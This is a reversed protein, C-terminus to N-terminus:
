GANGTRLWEIVDGASYRWDRGALFEPLRILADGSTVIPAETFGDRRSNPFGATACLANCLCVRNETEELSGGKNVYDDVPESSCRYGLKGDAARYATRLYGLDCVRPRAAYVDPRALTSELGVVKFPYGTPSAAVSTAVAVDGDLAIKIVRERLEPEMGSQQCLAFLTGVQIGAAGAELADRMGDPSGYGGALWFPQELEAMESLDVADRPGYIPEGNDDITMKGRPPANHGGASPMEVIFGDTQGSARKIMTRALLVSAVIAIFRPRYLPGLAAPVGPFLSEPDFAIRHEEGAAAGDVEIRYDVPKHTALADLIGPFQLPMGAGVIVVDVGALMAGYLTSLHPLQIKELVNIGVLGDHGEKALWVEVFASAATLPELGRPPTISWMSPHRYPQGDPIGGEVFYRDMVWDATPRHPFHELARRVHGGSDGDQLRRTVILAIGTGSVVGMEGTHCVTRALRWDSIAVGMGGQIIRPPWAADMTM